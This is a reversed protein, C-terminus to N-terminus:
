NSDQELNENKLFLKGRSFYKMRASIYRESKSSFAKVVSLNGPAGIKQGEARLQIMYRATRAALYREYQYDHKAKTEQLLIEYAVYTAFGENLEEYEEVDCEAWHPDKPDFFLRSFSHGVEHAVTDLYEVYGPFTEPEGLANEKLFLKGERYAPIECSFIITGNNYYSAQSRCNSNYIVKTPPLSWTEYGFLRAVSMEMRRVDEVIRSDISSKHTTSKEVTACSFLIFFIVPYFFKKANM